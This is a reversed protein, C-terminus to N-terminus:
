KAKKDRCSRLYAILDDTESKELIDAFSPMQKGGDQIQTRIQTENLRRGVGSLDPGKNGGHQHITHCQPCGSETFVKAGRARPDTSSVSSTPPAAQAFLPAAALSLLLAPRILNM